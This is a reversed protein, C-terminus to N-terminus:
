EYIEEDEEYETDDLLGEYYGMRKLRSLNSAIVVLGCVRLIPMFLLVYYMIELKSAKGGTIEELMGKTEKLVASYGIGWLISLLAYCLIGIIIANESMSLLIEEGVIKMIPAPIKMFFFFFLTLLTVPISLIAIVSSFCQIVNVYPIMWFKVNYGKVWYYNKCIYPMCVLLEILLAVAGVIKLPVLRTGFYITAIIAIIVVTICVIFLKTKDERNIAVM